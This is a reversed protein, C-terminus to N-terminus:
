QAINGASDRNRLLAGSRLPSHHCVPPHLLIQPNAPLHYVEEIERHYHRGVSQGAKIIIESVSLCQLGSNSPAALERMVAGDDDRFPRVQDRKVVTM